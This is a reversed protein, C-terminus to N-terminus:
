SPFVGATCVIYNVGDPELGSLNPLAFTTTGNGGYTSGLLSFLAQNMDTRLIQGHAFDWGTPAFTGAFLTVEALACSHGLGAGGFRKDSGQAGGFRQSPLFASSDLSDLKDADAAKGTKPLYYGPLQGGLKASNAATGTKPLFGTSDIGDLKDANLSPVKIGTNVTFPAHGSAVNLGLATSAANSTDNNTLQLAKGRRDDSTIAEAHHTGKRHRRSCDTM